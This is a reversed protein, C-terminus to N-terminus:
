EADELAEIIFSSSVKVTRGTCLNRAFIRGGYAYDTVIGTQRTRGIMWDVSSGLPYLDRLEKELAREAAVLREEALVLRAPRDPTQAFRYSM